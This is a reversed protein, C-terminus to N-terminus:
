HNSSTHCTQFYFGVGGGVLVGILKIWGLQLLEMELGHSIISMVIVSVVLGGLVGWTIYDREMKQHGQPGKGVKVQEQKM